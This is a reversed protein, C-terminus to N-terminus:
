VFRIFVSDYSPASYAESFFKVKIENEGIEGLGNDNYTVQGLFSNWQIDSGNGFVYYMNRLVNVDYFLDKYTLPVEYFEGEPTDIREGNLEIHIYGDGYTKNFAIVDMNGGGGSSDGGGSSNGGCQEIWAQNEEDFMYTKKTDIETFVSGNTIKIGNHKGVPKEDKSLGFFEHPVKKGCVDSAITIM